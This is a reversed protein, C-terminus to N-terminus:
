KGVIDKMLQEQEVQRVVEDAKRQAEQAEAKLFYVGELKYSKAKQCVDGWADTEKQSDAKLFGNMLGLVSYVDIEYDDKKMSSQDPLIPLLSTEFDVSSGAPMKSASYIALAIRQGSEDLISYAVLPEEEVKLTNTLTGKIAVNADSGSPTIDMRQNAIEYGDGKASEGGCAVLAPLILLVAVVVMLIRYRARGMEVGEPWEGFTQPFLRLRQEIRSSSGGCDGCGHANVGYAHLDGLLRLRWVVVRMTTLHSQEGTPLRFRATTTSAIIVGKRMGFVSHM